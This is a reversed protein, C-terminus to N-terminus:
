RSRERDAENMSVLEWRFQDGPKMQGLLDLDTSLVNAIRPYGGTTQADAMLVILQGSDTLQITGPMVGSSIIEIPQKYNSLSNDLRYGMRNSHTSITYRNKLFEKITDTDIRHYEPGAMIRIVGQDLSTVPLNFKPTERNPTLVSITTGKAIVSEPTLQRANQPSTSYSELWSEIQWDGGVALYGRCGSQVHGISLTHTGAVEISQDHSIQRHDLLLEFRGGTIAINGYGELKITPGKLTFELVPNFEPNGVVLNALRASRVDMPGSRPVGYARYKERGQDQVTTQLGPNIISLQIKRDM